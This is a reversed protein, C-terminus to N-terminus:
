GMSWYFLSIRPAVRPYKLAQASPSLVVNCTVFCGAARNSACASDYKLEPICDVRGSNDTSIIQYAKNEYFHPIPFSSTSYLLLTSYRLSIVCTIFFNGKPRVQDVSARWSMPLRSATLSVLFPCHLKPACPVGYTKCGFTPTLEPM